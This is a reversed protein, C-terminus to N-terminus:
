YDLELFNYPGSCLWSHGPVYKITMLLTKWLCYLQWLQTLGDLDTRPLNFTSCLKCVFIVVEHQENSTWNGILSMWIKVLGLGTRTEYFGHLVRRVDYCGCTWYRSGCAAWGQSWWLLTRHGQPWAEGRLWFLSHASHTLPPLGQRVVKVLRIEDPM